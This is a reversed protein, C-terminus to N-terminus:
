GTSSPTVRAGGTLEPTALAEAEAKLAAKLAARAEVHGDGEESLDMQVEFLAFDSAGHTSSLSRGNDKEFDYPPPADAHTTM